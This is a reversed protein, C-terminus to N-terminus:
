EDNDASVRRRRNSKEVQYQGYLKPNEAIAKEMAAEKTMTKDKSKELIEDRKETLQSYASDDGNRADRRSVGTETMLLSRVATDGSKLLKVIQKAVKVPTSEFLAKLLAGKEEHTGTLNPIDQKAKEVFEITTRKEREEKAIELAEKAIRHSKEISRRVSPSLSKMVEEDLEEVENDEDDADLEDDDDDAKAVVKKSKKAPTKKTAKKSKKAPREDDEEEEVDEDADADDEDDPDGDDSKEIDDEEEVEEEDEDDRGKAVADDEEEEEEEDGRQKSKSRADPKGTKKVPAAKKRPAAKRPM